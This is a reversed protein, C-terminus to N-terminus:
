CFLFPLCKRPQHTTNTRVAVSLTNVTRTCTSTICPAPLIPNRAELHIDDSELKVSRVRHSSASAHKSLFQLLFLPKRCQYAAGTNGHVRGRARRCSNPHEGDDFECKRMLNVVLFTFRWCLSRLWESRVRERKGQNVFEVDTRSERIRMALGRPMLTPDGDRKGITRVVIRM